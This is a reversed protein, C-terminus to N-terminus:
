CSKRTHRLSQLCYEHQTITECADRVIIECAANGKEDAKKSKAVGSVSGPHIYSDDCVNSDDTTGTSACSMLSGPSISLEHTHQEVVTLKM